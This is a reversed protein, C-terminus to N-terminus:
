FRTQFAYLVWCLIACKLVTGLVLLCLAYKLNIIRAVIAAPGGLYPVLIAAIVVWRSRKLLWKTVKKKPHERIGSNGNFFIRRRDQWKALRASSWQWRNLLNVIQGTGYFYCLVAILGKSPLMILAVWFPIGASKYLLIGGIANGLFAPFGSWIVTWV